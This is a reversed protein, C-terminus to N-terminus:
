NGGEIETVNIRFKRGNHTLVQGDHIDDQNIFYVTGSGEYFHDEDGEEPEPIDYDARIEAAEDSDGAPYAVIRLSDEDDGYERWQIISIRNGNGTAQSAVWHETSIERASTILSMMTEWADDNEMVFADQEDHEACQENPENADQHCVPCEGDRTMNGITDIFDILAKM